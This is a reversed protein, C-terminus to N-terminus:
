RCAFHFRFYHFPLSMSFDAYHRHDDAAAHFFFHSADITAALPMLSVDFYSILCYYDFLRRRFRLIPLSYLRFAM